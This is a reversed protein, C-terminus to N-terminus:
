LYPVYEVMDPVILMEAKWLDSNELSKLQAWSHVVIIPYVIDSVAALTDDRNTYVVNVFEGGYIDIYQMEEYELVSKDFTMIRLANATEADICAVKYYLYDEISADSINFTQGDEIYLAAVMAFSDKATAPILDEGRIVVTHMMDNFVSEVVDYMGEFNFSHVYLLTDEIYQMRATKSFKTRQQVYYEVAAGFDKKSSLVTQFNDLSDSTGVILNEAIKEELCYAVKDRSEYTYEYAAPDYTYGSVYDEVVHEKGNEDYFYVKHSVEFESYGDILNLSSTDKIRMNLGSILETEGEYLAFSGNANVILKADSDRDVVAIEYYANESKKIIFGDQSEFTDEPEARFDSIYNVYEGNELSIFVAPMYKNDETWVTIVADPEGDLTFDIHHVKYDDYTFSEGSIAQYATTFVEDTELFLLMAEFDELKPDIATQSAAPKCATLCLASMLIISLLKKM